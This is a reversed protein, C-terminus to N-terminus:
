PLGLRGLNGGLVAAPAPAPVRAGGGVANGRVGVTYDWLVDALCFACFRWILTAPVCVPDVIRGFTCITNAAM